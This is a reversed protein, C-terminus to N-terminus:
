MSALPKLLFVPVQISLSAPLWWNFPRCSRFAFIFTLLYYFTPLPSAPLLFHIVRPFHIDFHSSYLNSVLLPTCPCQDWCRCVGTLWPTPSDHMYTAKVQCPQLLCWEHRCLLIPTLLLPDLSCQVLSRTSRFPLIPSDPLFLFLLPSYTLFPLSRPWLPVLIWSHQTILLGWDRMNLDIAMHTRVAETKTRM